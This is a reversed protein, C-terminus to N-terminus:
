GLVGGVQETSVALYDAATSITSYVSLLPSTSIKECCECLTLALAAGSNTSSLRHSVKRYVSASAWFGRSSTMRTGLAPFQCAFSYILWVIFETSVPDWFLWMSYNFDYNLSRNITFLRLFSLFVGWLRILFSSNFRSLSFCWSSLASTWYSFALLSLILSLHYFDIPITSKSIFYYFLTYYCAYNVISLISMKNYTRFLYSKLM